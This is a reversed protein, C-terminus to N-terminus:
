VITAGILTFITKMESISEENDYYIMFGGNTHKEYYVDYEKTINVLQDVDDYIVLMLMMDNWFGNIRESNKGFKYQKHCIVEKGVIMKYIHHGYYYYYSHYNM